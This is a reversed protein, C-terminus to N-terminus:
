FPRGGPWFPNREQTAAVVEVRHESAWSRLRAALPEVVLRESAFHGIDILPLGVEVAWQADHYKVDGTIFAQAGAALATRALSAGSGTCLATKHVMKGPDGAVRIDTEGLNKRLKDVLECLPTPEPLFGIRGMGGYREEGRWLPDAELPELAELALLRALVGNTGEHAADLNTHAAILHIGGTLARAIINGPFVDLRISKLPSFILPHHTVLCQRPGAQEVEAITASSAELAVVIRQVEARPDGVLLGSNDWSAAFRFPAFDDIQTLIDKVQVM